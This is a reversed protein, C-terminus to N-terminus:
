QLGWQSRLDQANNPPDVNRPDVFPPASNVPKGPAAGVWVRILEIFIAEIEACDANSVPFEPNLYSAM